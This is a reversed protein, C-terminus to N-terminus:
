RTSTVLKALLRLTKTLQQKTTGRGFSFRLTARAQQDTLGIAALVPSPEVSAASCASGVAVQVGAEDLEMMLRENDIGAFTASVIHPARQKARGNITVGPMKSLEATFFNRLATLKANQKAKQAQAIKLAEALGVIAPLNETGSRLSREQGGGEILPTLRTAGAVFLIGSQKPGYIKGGNLTLLDVGLRATKLDLYNPAQAADTHLYLPLRNGKLQRRHRVQQISAGIDRLPQITGLENSVLMVSVLVTGDNVMKALHDLEVVGAPTVPIRRVKFRSAPETVSKHEIASVLLESKPFQQMVGKIALNNAETAGATFIIEGPKAGLIQAIDARAKELTRRAARGALYKSSPNFFQESFYPAMAALVKPDIPTAAAYDLYISKM